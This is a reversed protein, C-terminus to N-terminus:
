RGLRKTNGLSLTKQSLQQEDLIFRNATQQLTDTQRLLQEISM